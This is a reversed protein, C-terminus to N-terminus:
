AAESAGSCVGMVGRAGEARLQSISPKWTIDLRGSCCTEISRGINIINTPIICATMCSDSCCLTPMGSRIVAKSNPMQETSEDEHISMKPRFPVGGAGTLAGGARGGRGDGARAGMGDRRSM